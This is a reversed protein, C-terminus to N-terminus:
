GKTGKKAVACPTIRTRFQPKRYRMCRIKFFYLITVLAALLYHDGPHTLDYLLLVDKYLLFGCSPPRSMYYIVDYSLFFGASRNKYAGGCGGAQCHVKNIGGCHHVLMCCTYIASFLMPAYDEGPNINRALWGALEIVAAGELLRM